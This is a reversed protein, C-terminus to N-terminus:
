DGKGDDSNEVDQCGPEDLAGLWLASLVTQEDVGIDHHEEDAPQGEMDHKCQEGEIAVVDDQVACKGVEEVEEVVDYVAEGQEVTHNVWDEVVEQAFVEAALEDGSHNLVDGFVLAALLACVIGGGGCLVGYDDCLVIVRGILPSRVRGSMMPLPNHLPPLERCESLDTLNNKRTILLCKAKLFCKKAPWRRHESPPAPHWIHFSITRPAVSM